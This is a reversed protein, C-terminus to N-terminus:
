HGHGGAHWRRMGAVIVWVHKRMDRIEGPIALRVMIFMMTRERGSERDGGASSYEWWDMGM